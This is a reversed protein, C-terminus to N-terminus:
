VNNVEAFINPRVDVHLDVKSRSPSVRSAAKQPQEGFRMLMSASFPAWQPFSKLTGDIGLDEL